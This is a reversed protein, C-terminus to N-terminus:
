REEIHFGQCRAPCKGAPHECPAIALVQSPLAPMSPDIPEPKGLGAKFLMRYLRKYDARHAAREHRNWGSYQPNLRLSRDILLHLQRKLVLPACRECAAWGEEDIQTITDGQPSQFVEVTGRNPPFAVVAALYCCFDCVQGNHKDQYHQHRERIHEAYETLIQDLDDVDESAMTM